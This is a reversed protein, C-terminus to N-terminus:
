VGVRYGRVPHYMGRGNDVQLDKLWRVEYAGPDEAPWAQYYVRWLERQCTGGRRFLGYLASGRSARLLEVKTLEVDLLYAADEPSFGCQSIIRAQGSSDPTALFCGDPSLPECFCLNQPFTTTTM